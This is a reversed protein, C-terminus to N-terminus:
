VYIWGYETSVDKGPLGMRGAPGDAGEEGKMGQEGQM